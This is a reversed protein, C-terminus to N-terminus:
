ENNRRKRTTTQEGVFTDDIDTLAALKPDAGGINYTIFSKDVAVGVLQALREGDLYKDGLGIWGSGALFQDKQNRDQFVICLWFETDTALERRASEAKMRERFGKHLEALRASEADEHSLHEHDEIPSEDADPGFVRLESAAAEVPDLFENDDLSGIDALDPLDTLPPLAFPDHEKREVRAATGQEVSKARQLFTTTPVPKGSAIPVAFAKSVRPPQTVKPAPVTKKASKKVPAPKAPSAHPKKKAPPLPAAPRLKKIAM